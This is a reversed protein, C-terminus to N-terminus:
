HRTRFATFRSDVYEASDPRLTARDGFWRTPVVHHAAPPAAGTSDFLTWQGRAKLTDRYRIVYNSTLVRGDRSVVTSIRGLLYDSGSSYCDEYLVTGGGHARVAAALGAGSQSQAIQGLPGAGAVLVVAPFLALAPWRLLAGRRSIAVLAAALVVVCALEVLHLQPVLPSDAAVGARQAWTAASALGLWFVAAVIAALRRRRESAAGWSEAAWWALAPFAPLLYTVLKSHSLSSFVTAFLVFGAAVRSARSGPLRWPTALSWPLAGGAFVAPVFWWPQERKFSSTTLRELSEELFAYRAYEPHRRLALAFWGGALGLVILWGPWWALWRVPGRERLLLAAALSGGAAWLLMVPGKALVGLAVALFMGARRGANPGAELETAIGTWVATVCLALPMDFIVYAALVAFLPASATLLVAREAHGDPALRRATRALLVLTGLTALLAPLRAAFPTHGFVRIGAAGAAFLLPPKDLYPMGALHPIVVDGSVAMERAVEANRGEDPDLLPYRLAIWLSLLTSLLLL